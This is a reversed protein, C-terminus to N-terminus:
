SSFVFRKAWIDLIKPYFYGITEAVIWYVGDALENWVARRVIVNM